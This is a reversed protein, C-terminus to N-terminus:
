LHLLSLLFTSPFAKFLFILDVARIYNKNIYSRDFLILNEDLQLWM